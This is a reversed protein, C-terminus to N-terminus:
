LMLDAKKLMALPNKDAAMSYMEFAKQKNQTVVRGEEYIIGTFYQAVSNGKEVYPKLLNISAGSQVSLMDMLPRMQAYDEELNKLCM